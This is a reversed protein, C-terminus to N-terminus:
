SAPVAVAPHVLVLFLSRFTQFPVTGCGATSVPAPAFTACPSAARPAAGQPPQTERPGRDRRGPRAAAGRAPGGGRWAGRDRTRDRVKGGRQAQETAKATKDTDHATPRGRSAGAREDHTVLGRLEMQPENEVCVPAAVGLNDVDESGASHGLNQVEAVRATAHPRLTRGPLETPSRSARRGCRRAPKECPPRLRGGLM